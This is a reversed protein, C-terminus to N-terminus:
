LLASPLKEYLQGSQSGRRRPITGSLSVPAAEPCGFSLLLDVLAKCAAVSADPNLGNTPQHKAAAMSAAAKAYALCTRGDQDVCKVDANHWILLQAVAMNGMACALHLPTRLDRPGVTTNVEQVNARALVSVIGKMNSACVSDILQQGLPMTTNPPPLFEKGEYKARIWREREERSSTQNPKTRNQIQCEWVSNALLNGIALMVALNGPPWEDLDMSRVRSIHSGLNRHIGSCEICMLVGLNLSAWDPNPADCDVCYGNGPVRAKISQLTSAEVPNCKMKFTENSQLSNLIQQEIAAVWEDREDSSSAEFHWQKNDLSVIYFENAENDDYESNKLGSSKVRRHRKKVNPTEIKSIEGNLFSNSSSLVMGEDGSTQPGYRSSPDKVTDFASLLVKETPRKDKGALSLGGIGEQLASHCHTGAVTIISKSGRPKQGPVKVTVYQLSIEKGHVDDMYDHLSPHYTLRGDDCLTVYKKKWDKNLPKSSRKYLYGQKLPIARGSGFDGGNKMKDEGKKSPTFLNSRRRSKRSTTPTSNPTPLDKADKSSNHANQLNDLSHPAAFKACNNNEAVSQVAHLLGHASGHSGLTSTSSTWKEESSRHVPEKDSDRHILHAPKLTHLQRIDLPHSNVPEKSSLTHNHGPSMHPQQQQQSYGNNGQMLHRQASMSATPHYHNNPTSPRSNTPTLCLTSASLRQQVIKQCADQFVRDVNLGYTACTEYYTCRKLDNALKRARSDDIVRPNNESIADQTGVLILPVEAANRYHSMKTYYNFIANFSSENELSFVFIVADVWTTFQMEPPGGEDRILLLYSHSDVMIEKKFRGGEPSEEQMYSGTLYRHVLASKGSSLSGVIGLRLDPVARSLTWEQSNVFSDSKRKEPLIFSKNRKIRLSRRRLSRLFNEPMKQFPQPAGQHVNKKESMSLWNRVMTISIGRSKKASPTQENKLDVMKM